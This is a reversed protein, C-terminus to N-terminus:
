KNVNNFEPMDRQSTNGALAIDDKLSQVLSKLRNYDFPMLGSGYQASQCNIMEDVIVGFKDCFRELHPNAIETPALPALEVPNKNSHPTDRFTEESFKKLLEDLDNCYLDFRELDHSIVNIDRVSNSKKIENVYSKVFDYLNKIDRNYVQM